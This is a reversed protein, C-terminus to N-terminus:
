RVRRKPITIKRAPKEGDIVTLQLDTALLKWEELRRLLGTVDGVRQEGLAVIMDQAVIGSGKLPYGVKTLWAGGAFEPYHWALSPFATMATSGLVPTSSSYKQTLAKLADTSVDYRVFVLTEKSGAAKGAYEEWYWDTRQSPVAAGGFSQLIEAVRKRAKNITDNAAIYAASSRDLDAAQLASLAKSRTESYAPIIASRFFSDTIKLGITNVLEELAADNAEAVAEDRTPRYSSVGICMLRNIMDHCYASSPVDSLIWDPREFKPQEPPLVVAPTPNVALKQEDRDKWLTFAVVALGVIVIMTLALALYMARSSSPAEVPTAKAKNSGVLCNELQDVPESRAKEIFRDLAADRDRAPLARLVRMQEPYLGTVLQGQCTKCTAAPVIGGVLEELNSAVDITQITPQNCRNCDYTLSFTRVKVRDRLDETDVGHELFGPPCDLLQLSKVKQRANAIYNRWPTLQAPDFVIRELDLVTTDETADLLRDMPLMAVNGQLRIYSYGRKTRRHARFRTLDPSLNYKFQARLFVLVEDDIDFGPRDAIADFFAAPYEELRARGGCTPCEQDSGPLDRITDRDRPILFLTELEESCSGCRYSAYFSVLKAHGLLGTVLNLQSVAYTSCEVIYLDRDETIRLFDMWESMGWSAYRRVDRMILVSKPTSVADAIKKGEFAHDLTGHLTLLTIGGHTAKELEFRDHSRQPPTKSAPNVPPM